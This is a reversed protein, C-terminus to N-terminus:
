SPVTIFLYLPYEFIHNRTTSRMAKTAPQPLLSEVAGLEALAMAAYESAPTAPVISSVAFVIDTAMGIPVFLVAKIAVNVVEPALTFTPAVSWVLPVVVFLKVLATTYVTVAASLVVAAYVTVRVVANLEALAM